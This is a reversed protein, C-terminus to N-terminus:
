LMIQLLGDPLTLLGPGALVLRCRLLALWQSRASPLVHPRFEAFLDLLQLYCTGRPKQQFHHSPSSTSVWIDVKESLVEKQYLDWMQM